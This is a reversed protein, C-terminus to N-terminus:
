KGSNSKHNYASLTANLMQELRFKRNIKGWLEFSLESRLNGNDIFHEIAEAIKNPKGPEVLFGTAKNEIIEPIGGVETAVVPLRALGAELLTYPLGEKISPLVFVDFAKLHLPADPLNEVVFIKESLKHNKIQLELEEKDEGFGILVAQLKFGSAQLMTIAEILYSQGKNKTFEGITGIWISNKDATEKIKLRDASLCSEHNMIGERAKEKTLFRYENFNIGNHITILKKEGTIKNKIAIQRDFESVCIIKNYFLCTIKSFFKIIRIQFASREENFVWGHATFITILSYGSAMLPKLIRYILIAPGALGGAKSSNVHIIDLKIKFLLRLIEFFSLIDKLFSIDKRFHKIEFCPINKEKLKSFLTKQQRSPEPGAAVFVKFQEPPLNAALDFVYKGAGGWVSKTIIYLVKKRNQNM